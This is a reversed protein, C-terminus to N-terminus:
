KKGEWRLIAASALKAQNRKAAYHEVIQLTQGSIAATEAVSCGCELLAIVANKRLGHPVVHHGSAKAWAQLKHRLGGQSWPLGNANTLITVATKEQLELMAALEPLIAVKLHKDKKQNYVLMTDGRIDSWKMRIADDIRQGTFYLLAVPMGVQPDAM